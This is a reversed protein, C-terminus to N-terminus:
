ADSEGGPGARVSAIEAEDANGSVLDVFVDDLRVQRLRIGALPLAEIAARMIDRPSGGDALELDVSVGDRSANARRVGPLSALRAIADPTV